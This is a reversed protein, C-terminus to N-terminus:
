VLRKNLASCYYFTVPTHYRIESNDLKRTQRLVVRILFQPFEVKLGHKEIQFDMYLKLMQVDPLKKELFVPIYEIPIRSLLNEFSFPFYNEKLERLGLLQLNEDESKYYIKNYSALFHTLSAKQDIAGWGKFGEKLDKAKSGSVPNFGHEWVDLIKQNSLPHTEGFFENQYTKKVAELLSHNSKEHFFCEPICFDRVAIYDFNMEIIHKWFLEQQEISQYHYLEHLFSSIILLTKGKGKLVNYLTKARELDDYFTIHNNATPIKNQITEKDIDYGIYNINNHESLIESLRLLTGGNGCGYDFIATINEFENISEVIYDTKAVLGSASYNEAVPVQGLKELEKSM